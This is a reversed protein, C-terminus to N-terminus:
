TPFCVLNACGCCIIEKDNKTSGPPDISKDVTPKSTPLKAPHHFQQITHKDLITLTYPSLAEKDEFHFSFDVYFFGNNQM